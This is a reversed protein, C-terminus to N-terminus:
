LLTQTMHAENLIHENPASEVPVIEDDDDTTDSEVGSTEYDDSTDIDPQTDQEPIPWLSADYDHLPSCGTMSNCRVVQFVGKGERVVAPWQADCPLLSTAFGTWTEEGMGSSASLKRHVGVDDGDPGFRPNVVM